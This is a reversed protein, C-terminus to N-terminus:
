RRSRTSARRLLALALGLALGGAVALFTWQFAVHFATGQPMGGALSAAELLRHLGTLGTAAGVVGITRTVITLSGAVGRDAKPLRALVADTYAIQFLGLGLGQVLLTAGFLPPPATAEALGIGVLGAVSVAAGLCTLPGEGTRQVLRGALWSGAIVGIANMALVLGGTAADLGLTRTLHFPVLLMVAFGALNVAISALNLLLFGGDRLLEPRIIPEAHRSEHILFFAFAITGLGILGAAVMAPEPVAPRAAALLFAALWAVLLAAGTWDFRRGTGAAAAPGPILWSFALAAVVLPARAWFVVPWGFREVLMGGALPGLASGVAMAAGYLALVRTRETEAYLSTALAPACSWTLAIGVGQLIRGLLLLPLSPAFACALFGATAVVLGLRFIRRYGLIDGLKGFVLMLSAYTLVYAIIVWRIDEVRMGFAATISPFAINVSSDLPAALTGLCVVALAALPRTRRETM